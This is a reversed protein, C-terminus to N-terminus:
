DIDINVSVVGERALRAGVSITNLRRIRRDLRFEFTVLRQSVASAVFLRVTTNGGDM